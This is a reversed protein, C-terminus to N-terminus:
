CIYRMVIAMQEKHLVDECEDAIITFYSDGIEDRIKQRVKKAIIEIIEKQIQGSTYTVNGSPQKFVIKAKKDYSALLDVLELFNGRNLSDQKENHGRFALGQLALYKTADISVKLRLRNDERQQKSQKEFSQALHQPQNLLDLRCQVAKDHTSNVGGM